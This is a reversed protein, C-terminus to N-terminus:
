QSKRRETDVEMAIQGLEQMVNVEDVHHIVVLARAARHTLRDGNEQHNRYSVWVKRIVGDRTREIDHVMGIQYKGRFDDENKLFLVIDGVALDRDTKFWKPQDMLKLVHSVLWNEFWANFIRENEEILKEHHGTSFTGAPSRDNNRGLLLRNPTILDMADLDKLGRLTLPLNNISNAITAGLTEWQLVGLRENSLTKALSERIQRIKREVKGHMNHGGVPCVSVDVAVDKHLQYKIDILDLSVSECGKVLQSGEDILLRKPYGVECCFRMFAQLFSGTAYTEMVKINTASTTSCCFVVFWVKITTRKNHYSYATFPGALDAQCVYYAPAIMLNDPSVPGMAVNLAKKMLFRCRQCTERFKKVLPRGDIVYMYKVVYRWTTEVGTHCATPDNWHVDNIVSYGIPSYKDTLPVCFTSSSLDRMVETAQGVISVEDTPLIRGTYYLVGGIDTSIDKYQQPKLFQRIEDSAKKFYYTEAEKLFVEEIFVHSDMFKPLVRIIGQKRNAVAARASRIFKYVIALQRLVKGFSHRNPDIVYDSFMYREKLHDRITDGESKTYFLREHVHPDIQIEKSAEEDEKNSLAIEKATLVPFSSEDQTMWSYGNIWISDQQVASISTNRRTGIDAVMDKTRVYKWQSPDTFRRIEIVRNRVWTKLSRADNDIWFLSIQSDTLKLSGTHYQRLSKRVVDGSHTNVLAAFLEARPQSMGSPVLRSRGFILQCSYLGCKRLFRVYIAVCVLDRSADAFDLTNIDLSVADDPIVARHFRLNQIEAMMEFHSSWLERLDDPLVDDWALKRVVLEHLDMKLTATIPTLIGSMDFIEAAKSCCIRRTLKKPVENIVGEVKGRRKKAFNPENFDLAILDEEPFWKHGAVGISTGDKTVSPDPPLKSITFSKLTFGGRNLVLELNSMNENVISSASLEPNVSSAGSMCDDVFLDNLVIALIEPFEDKFTHAILRIAYEAQNGASRCGYILTKIIKELPSEDPDLTPHWWYRQLSWYYYELEVENYMTNVDNHFAVSYTRWRMFIEILKNMNNRGKAIIDNLGVGSPTPMTGDFVPRCPSSISSSKFVPRWPLFNQVKANKLYEQIEPSLDKVYAVFGKDHLKKEAKIVSAKDEPNKNLRKIVGDYVKKAVSGNPSLKVAPDAILPLKAITRQREVDYTISRKIIDDEVEERISTAENADHDKCDKCLRCKVCRFEIQSGAEEAENFRRMRMQVAHIQHTPTEACCYCILEPNGPEEAPDESDSYDYHDGYDCIEQKYGLMKIDLDVQYGMRFLHFQQSMFNNVEGYFQRDIAAIIPHPGGCVGYSGDPNKFSSKYIALGCPLQFVKEPIYRNYKIGIILDTNGGVSCPLKPLENINKGGAQAFATTLEKQISELPYTPFMETIIEMCAGKFNAARGNGLPLTIKYVGYPSIATMGAVGGLPTPGRIIERARKGLRVVAAYRAGFRRCGTDYLINYREKEVEITQLMYIADQGDDEEDDVDDETCVYSLHHISINRSFDHLGQRRSICRSIYTQLLAQNDAEDKHESCVLVHPKIIDSSHSPHKCAFERQCKGDKHKGKDIKGGPYLCQHCLGKDNLEKLRQECTDKVFKPCAFYQVLKCGKPGNTIIHDSKGCIHCDSKSAANSDSSLHYSDKSKSDGKNKKVGNPDQPPIEKPKKSNLLQQRQCIKVEKELFALLESWQEEGETTIKDCSITLWRHVRNSGLLGTIREFSDGMYLKTEIDHQKALQMLDRMLNIIKSLGEITKEPGKLNWIGGISDIKEIKKQLMIRCDGYAEKLRRWIEEIELVDKVLLLASEELYNNKLIDALFSKPSSKHIKQFNTQFTYIDVTSNYGGFKALPINLKSKDFAKQEDIERCKVEDQLRNVYKDRAMLLHDFKKRQVDVLTGSDKVGASSDMMSQFMSTLSQVEELQKSINTKRKTVQEDTEDSWEDDQISFVIDLRDISKNISDQIFNFKTEKANSEAAVIEDEGDRIARKKAKVAKIYEKMTNLKADFVDTYTAKYQDGNMTRSLLNHKTRYHSRLEEMRRCVYDHDAVNNGIEQVINEDMFDDIEAAITAEEAVLEPDAAMTALLNHVEQQITSVPTVNSQDQHLISESFTPDQAHNTVKSELAESAGVTAFVESSCRPVSAELSNSSVQAEQDSDLAEILDLHWDDAIKETAGSDDEKYVKPFGDSNFKKYDIKKLKRLNRPSSM